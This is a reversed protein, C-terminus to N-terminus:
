PPLDPTRFKGENIARVAVEMDAYGTLLIRIIDPYKKRVKILFELGTTTPMRHDSIIVDINHDDELYALAKDAETFTVLRYGERRLSRNLSNLVYKEDDILMITHKGM